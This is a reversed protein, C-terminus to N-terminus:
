KINFGVLLTADEQTIDLNYKNALYFHVKQSPSSSTISTREENELESFPFPPFVLGRKTQHVISCPSNRFNSDHTFLLVIEKSLCAHVGRNNQNELESLLIKDYDDLIRFNKLGQISKLEEIAEYAKQQLFIEKIVQQTVARERAM